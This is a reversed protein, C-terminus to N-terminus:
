ALSGTVEEGLVRYTRYGTPSTDDCARLEIIKGVRIIKWYPTDDGPNYNTGATRKYRQNEPTNFNPNDRIFDSLWQEPVDKINQYISGSDTQVVDGPHWSSSYNWQVAHNIVYDVKSAQRLSISSGPGTTSVTLDGSSMNALGEVTKSVADAWKGQKTKVKVDPINIM